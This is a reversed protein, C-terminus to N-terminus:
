NLMCNVCVCVVAELGPVIYFTFALYPGSKSWMKIPFFVTCTNTLTVDNSVQLDYWLDQSPGGAGFSHASQSLNRKVQPLPQTDRRWDASCEQWTSFWSSFLSLSFLCYNLVRILQFYKVPVLSWTLSCYVWSIFTVRSEHGSGLAM